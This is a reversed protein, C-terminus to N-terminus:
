KVSLRRAPTAQAPDDASSHFRGNGFGAASRMSEVASQM